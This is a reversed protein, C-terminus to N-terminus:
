SRREAFTARLTAANGRKDIAREATVPDAKMAEVYAAEPTLGYGRARRIDEALTLLKQHASEAQEAFALVPSTARARIAEDFLAPAEDAARVYAAEPSLHPDTQRIKESMAVLQGHASPQAGELLNGDPDRDKVVGYLSPLAECALLLAADRNVGRKRQIQEGAALLADRAESFTIPQTMGDLM